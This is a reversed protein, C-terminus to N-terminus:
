LVFCQSTLKTVGTCQIEFDAVGDGNIDGALINSAFRLQGASTFNLTDIFIFADDGGSSTNADISSLNIKDGQSVIFDSIIDRQGSGTGTDLASLFMFIDAGKGGVLIDVGANGILTDNGAGGSLTNSSANGTLTNALSNGTANSTGATADLTLNEITTSTKTALTWSRDSIITDIGDDTKGETVTDGATVYYTDNGRGGFLSDVGDGGDLVNDAANGILTDNGDGGVANEIVVGNAITYGGPIGKNWSVYGGANAGILPAANLNITTAKTSGANSIEDEGGADWICSWYTGTALADPLVYTDDGTATDNNAGYITQLAAIDLAMPTGQYGYNYSPSTQMTWGDNYSMTTWIGQNLGNTGTSWPSRVGAFTTADAHDGGDHPHALGLGHGLEHIVTIFGYSGVELNAWTSHQYNFYGYIPEWSADPVEHMGLTGSGMASQPTLWWVIDADGKSTAASFTLNCVASYQGLATVFASKESDEWAAGTFAGVSRDSDPVTGSGFYYSIPTSTWGCGWVLSDIFTNGYGSGLIANSQTAM